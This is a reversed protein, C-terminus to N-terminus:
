RAKRDTPPKKQATIETRDKLLPAVAKSEMVYTWKSAAQERAIREDLRKLTEAYEKDRREKDQAKEDKEPTRQRPPQGAVSFNLLYDEGGDRVLKVTYTLNDFTEATLTVPKQDAAPHPEIA